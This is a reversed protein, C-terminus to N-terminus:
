RPAAASARPVPGGRSAEASTRSGALFLALSVVIWVLLFVAIRASRSM